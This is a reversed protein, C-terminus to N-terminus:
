PYRIVSASPQIALAEEFRDVAAAPRGRELELRGLTYLAAPDAAELALAHDLAIKATDYRGQDLRVQGLWIWGARYDPRRGLFDGLEGAALDFAGLKRDVQALYYLWRDEAPALARAHLYCARAAPFFEYADYVMGLEGYARGHAAADGGQALTAEFRRRESEIQERVGAEVRGLDPDPIEPLPASATSSSAAAPATTTEPPAEAPGQTGGCGDLVVVSLVFALARSAKAHRGRVSM